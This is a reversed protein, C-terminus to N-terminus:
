LSFASALHFDFWSSTQLQPRQVACRRKDCVTAARFVLLWASFFNGKNLLSERWCPRFCFLLVVVVVCVFLGFLCPSTFPQGTRLTLLQCFPSIMTDDLTNTHRFFWFVFFFVWVCVDGYELDTLLPLLVASHPFWPEGWGHAGLDCLRLRM